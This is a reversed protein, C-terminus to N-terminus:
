SASTIKATINTWWSNFSNSFLALILIMGVAVIAILLGYEAVAIGEEEKIFKQVMAKILEM